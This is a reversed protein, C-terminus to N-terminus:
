LATWDHAQDFNHSGQFFWDALDRLRELCGDYYARPEPRRFDPHSSTEAVTHSVFYYGWALWRPLSDYAPAEAYKGAVDRMAVELRTFAARDWDYSRLQLLFSGNAAQFEQQLVILADDVSAM